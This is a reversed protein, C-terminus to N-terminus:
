EGRRGVRGGVGEKRMFRGSLLDHVKPGARKKEENV